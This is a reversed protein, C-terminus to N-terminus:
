SLLLIYVINMSLKVDIVVQHGQKARQNKKTKKVLGVDHM